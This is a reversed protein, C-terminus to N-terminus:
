FGREDRVWKFLYRLNETEEKFKVPTAVSGLTFRVIERGDLSAELEPTILIRAKINARDPAYPGCEVAVENLIMNEGNDLLIRVGRLGACHPESTMLVLTKEEIDDSKYTSIAIASGPKKLLVEYDIQNAPDRNMAIQANM